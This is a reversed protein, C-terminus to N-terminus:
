FIGGQILGLVFKSLYIKDMRTQNPTHKTRNRDTQIPIALQFRINRNTFNEVSIALFWDIETYIPKLQNRDM